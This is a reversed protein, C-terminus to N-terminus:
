AKAGSKILEAEGPDGKRFSTKELYLGSNGSENLVKVASYSERGIMRKDIRFVDIRV